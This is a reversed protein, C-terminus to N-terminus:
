FDNQAHPVDAVRAVRIMRFRAAAPNRKLLSFGVDQKRNLAIM